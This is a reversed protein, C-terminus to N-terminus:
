VPVEMEALLEPAPQRLRDLLSALTGCPWSRVLAERGIRLISYLRRNSRYPALRADLGTAECALGAIWSAFAALAHILLLVAIRPEKRTLSDEFAQGYRHSKLDRFSSKIQMRKNYLAILQRANLDM